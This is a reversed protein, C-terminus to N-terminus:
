RIRAHLNCDAALVNRVGTLCMANIYLYARTRAHVRGPVYVSSGCRVAGACEFFLAQTAPMKAAYLCAFVCVSAASQVSGIPPCALHLLRPACLRRTRRVREPQLFGSLWRIAHTLSFSSPRVAAALSHARSHAVVLRGVRTCCEWSTRVCMQGRGAKHPGRGNIKWRVADSARVQALDFRM